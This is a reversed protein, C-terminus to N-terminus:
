HAPHPNALYPFVGLFPLDNASPFPSDTSTVRVDGVLDIVDDAPARGNPFIAPKSTDFIMVDPAVGMMGRHMSPSTTNMYDNEPFMSRLARGALDQFPGFVDDVKSTAWVLLTSQPADIAALPIEIVVSGVNRGARNGRIFPDDRLGAFFAIQSEWIEAVGKAMLVPTGDAKFKVKFRVNSSVQAPALVKGGYAANATQDAFSVAADTDVHITLVLDSPFTYTAASTPVNVNTSLALVLNSGNVFAHLDTIKADSRGISTLLPTDGHDAASVPSPGLALAFTAAAAFFARFFRHM